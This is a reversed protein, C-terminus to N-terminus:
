PVSLDGLTGSELFDKGDKKKLRRRLELSLHPHLWSSDEFAPGPSPLGQFLRPRSSAPSGLTM